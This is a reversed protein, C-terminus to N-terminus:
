RRKPQIPAPASTDEKSPKLTDPAKPGGKHVVPVKLTKTDGPAAKGRIDIQKTDEPETAQEGPIEGTIIQTIGKLFAYLALRENDDLDNFYKEMEAAITKDKLSRGSRLQNLKTVVMDMTIEGKKLEEGAGAAAKDIDVTSGSTDDGGETPKQEGSTADSAVDQAPQEAPQENSQEEEDGGAFLDDGAAEALRRSKALRLFEKLSDKDAIVYKKAM